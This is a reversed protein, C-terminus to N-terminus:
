GAEIQFRALLLIQFLRAILGVKVSGEVQEDVFPGFLQDILERRRAPTLEPQLDASLQWYEQALYWAAANFDSRMEVEWAKVYQRAALVMMGESAAGAVFRRWWEESNKEELLNQVAVGAVAAMDLLSAIHSYERATSSAVVQNMFRYFQDVIVVLRSDSQLGKELLDARLQWLAEPTPQTLVETLAPSLMM